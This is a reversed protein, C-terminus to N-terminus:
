LPKALPSQSAINAIQKTMTLVVLISVRPGVRREHCFRKLRRALAQTQRDVNRSESTNLREFWM